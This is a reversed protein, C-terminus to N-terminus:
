HPRTFHLYFYLGLWTQVSQSLYNLFMRGQMDEDVGTHITVGTETSVRPMNVVTEEDYGLFGKAWTKVFNGYPGDFPNDNGPSSALWTQNDRLVDNDGGFAYNHCNGYDYYQTGDPMLTGAGEPITLYQLGVNDNEAGITSIGFMPYQSM